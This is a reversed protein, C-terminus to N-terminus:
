KKFIKRENQELSDLTEELKEQGYNQYLENLTEMKAVKMNNLIQDEEEHEIKNFTEIRIDLPAYNKFCYIDSTTPDNYKHSICKVGEIDSEIETRILSNIPKFSNNLANQFYLRNSNYESIAFAKLGYIVLDYPTMAATLLSFDNLNINEQVNTSKNIYSIYKYAVFVYIAGSIIINIITKAKIELPIVNLIIVSWGTM